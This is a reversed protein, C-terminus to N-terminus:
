YAQCIGGAPIAGHVTCLTEFTFGDSSLGVVIRTPIPMEHKKFLMCPGRVWVVWGWGNTVMQHLVQIETGCWTMRFRLVGVLPDLRKRWWIRRM